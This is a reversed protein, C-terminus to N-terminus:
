APARKGLRLNVLWDNLFQEDGREPLGTTDRSREIEPVALEVFADIEKQSVNGNRINMLYTHEETGTEKWVLPHLGDAIRQADYLLRVLHYAWKESFKGGTTHLSTGHRLKSLQGKAYGLYQNVVTKSLFQQRWNYLQEFRNDMWIMKNTFLCEIVGPNGKLLLNCFKGVEHAQFDPKKGDVTEVPPRLSVVSEIPAIYCSLWDIDSTPLETNHSHSGWIKAFIIEGPVKPGLWSIFDRVKREM